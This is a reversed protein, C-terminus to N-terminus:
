GRVARFALPTPRPPTPCAGCRAASSAVRKPNALFDLSDTPLRLRSSLPLAPQPPSPLCPCPLPPLSLPPISPLLSAPPLCSPAKRAMTLPATGNLNCQLLPWTDRHAPCAGTPSPPGCRVGRVTDVRPGVDIDNHPTALASTAAIGHCLHIHCVHAHTDCVCVCSAARLALPCPLCALCARDHM